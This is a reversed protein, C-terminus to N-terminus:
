NHLKRMEILEVILKKVLISNMLHDQAHVMIISYASDEGGAEKSLMETQLNHAKNLSSNGEEILKNSKDYNHKKAEDLAQFYYSFADGAHGIMKLAIEQVYAKDM